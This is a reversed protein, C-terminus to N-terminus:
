LRTVRKITRTHRETVEYNYLNQLEYIDLKKYKGWEKNKLKEATKDLIRNTTSKLRDTSSSYNIIKNKLQDKKLITFSSYYNKSKIYLGSERLLVNLQNQTSVISLNVRQYEKFDQKNKVESLNCLSIFTERNIIAGPKFLKKNNSIVTNLFVLRKFSKTM